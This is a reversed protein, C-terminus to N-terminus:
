HALVLPVPCSELMQRTVGGFIAERLRSHGFGGMVLYGADRAAIEALLADAVSRGDAVVTATLPAINHRALYAAAEGPAAAPARDQVTLLTVTRALALLPVAARLAAIAALSGNWAVLANGGAAFARAREPVAVVATGSKVIIEGIAQQLDSSHFSDLRRNLVILDALRAADRVCSALTGVADVWTYGIAEADLRAELALRNASERTREDDLLLAGCVGDYDGAIQVMIAVDLCTLHGRIARTIDLAVQLRAEQGADDHVLLLVNKM